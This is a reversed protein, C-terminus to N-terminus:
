RRHPASAFSGHAGQRLLKEEGDCFCPRSM